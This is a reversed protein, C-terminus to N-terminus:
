DESEGSDSMKVIKPDFRAVIDVLDTQADMVLRIDKYSGPAEDLGASLLKVGREKLMGNVQNWRFSEKAKRRSMARGAGHSASNLSRACGKGRVVFGPTAMSGPIIGMVGLGAPTAGKRHVIVDRGFHTEKWAFNHKNEIVHIPEVGVAKLVDRHILSHCASAYEGMLHMAAMYEDGEQGINLWSLKRYEAPLKPHLSEALKSYHSAISAGAGRSGSHSLLAIYKTGQQFIGNGESFTVVGFEVFHNGSGSSGIQQYAKDKLQGVIPSIDNWNKDLVPHDKPKSFSAGMGFATNNEIASVYRSENKELDVPDIPIVSMKMQCSIDVGVAYPIVADHVALIGGIPLGYGAHADPAMAGFVSVPLDMARDMQAIAEPEINERGWIDYSKKSFDYIKEPHRISDLEEAVCGWIEKSVYLSPNAYIDQVIKSIDEAHIGLKAAQGCAKIAMGIIPGEPFGINLLERAKM